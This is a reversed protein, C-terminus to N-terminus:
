ELWLWCAALQAPDAGDGVLDVLGALDAPPSGSTEGLLLWASGLERRNPKAAALVSETLRWPPQELRQPLEGPPFAAPLSSLLVLERPPLQM